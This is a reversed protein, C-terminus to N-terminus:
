VISNRLVNTAVTCVIVRAKNDNKKGIRRSEFMSMNVESGIKILIQEMMCLLENNDKEIEPVGRVILNRSLSEQRIDNLERVIASVQTSVIEQKKEIININRQVLATEERILSTMKDMKEDISFLFTDLRKNFSLMLESVSSICESHNNNGHAKPM